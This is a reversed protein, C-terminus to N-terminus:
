LVPWRGYIVVYLLLASFLTIVAGALLSLIDKGTM